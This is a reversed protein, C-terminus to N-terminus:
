SFKIAHRHIADRKWVFGEIYYHFFGCIFLIQLWLQMSHPLPNEATAPTYYHSIACESDSQFGLWSDFLFAGCQIFNAVIVALVTCLIVPPVHLFSLARYIYNHQKVSNRNQDHVSYISLATIDHVIRPIAIVFFGYGLMLLAFTALLMAVNSYVYWTGLLRQSGKTLVLGQATSLAIFVAACAAAINYASYGYLAIPKLVPEAFVMGYMFSAAIAGTWRWREYAATGSPKKMLIMGVGFQQSLVHYMTYSAYFAFFLAMVIASPLGPFLFPVAFNLFLVAAIIILLIKLFRQRYFPIYEDDILTILSSTIHPFNFIVAWIVLSAPNSPLLERLRFDFFLHDLLVALLSIPIVSYLALLWRSNVAYNVPSKTVSFTPNPVASVTM